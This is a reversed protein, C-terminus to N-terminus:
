VARAARVPLRLTFASGEGPVSAVTLEGGLARALRSAIPLGYGHGGDSEGQLFIYGQREYPIGEGTDSVCVEVFDGLARWSVSVRGGRHTHRLANSILNLLIRSLMDEDMAMNLSAVNGGCCLRVGRGEAYPRCRLCLRRLCAALDGDVLCPGPDREARRCSELAGDLLRGMQSVSAMVLDIYAQADVTDDTLSLKLMQASSAILQLPMRLDHALEVSTPLM